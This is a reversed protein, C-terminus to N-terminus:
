SAFGAIHSARDRNLQQTCKWDDRNLAYSPMIVNAAVVNYDAM